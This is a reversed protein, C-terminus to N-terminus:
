VNWVENIRDSETERRREREHGSKRKDCHACGRKALHSAYRLIDAIETLGRFHAAVTSECWLFERQQYRRDSKLTIFPLHLQSNCGCIGGFSRVISDRTTKLQVGALKLSPHRLLCCIIQGHHHINLTQPLSREDFRWGAQNRQNGWQHVADPTGLWMFCWTHTFILTHIARTQFLFRLAMWRRGRERAGCSSWTGNLLYMLKAPRLLPVAQTFYAQPWFCPGRTLRKDSM